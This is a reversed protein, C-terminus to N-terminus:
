FLNTNLVLRNQYINSEFIRITWQHLHLIIGMNYEFIDNECVKDAHISAVQGSRMALEVLGKYDIILQVENVQRRSNWFPILHANRGDPELGTQSLSLMANFFSAKDCEALKPVRTLATVAVRIFRDPKLHTPLSKAIAAKFDPGELLGKITKGGTKSVATTTM